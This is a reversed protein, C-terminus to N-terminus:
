GAMCKKIKENMEAYELKFQAQELKFQEWCAMAEALEEDSVYEQPLSPVPNDM